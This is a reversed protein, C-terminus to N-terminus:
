EDFEELSEQKPEKFDLNEWKRVDGSKGEEFHESFERNFVRYKLPTEGLEYMIQKYFRYTEEKSKWGKEVRICYNDVFAQLPDSNENWIKLNAKESISWTFNGREMLQKSIGILVSFVLNREEVNDKLKQKLKNDRLPDGLPFKRNFMIIKWRRFFGDSQDNYVKPFRNCSFILKAYPKMKFPESYLHRVSVSEGSSITKIIGTHRLENHEIDTFLNALKGDLSPLCFQDDSLKQLSIKTYNDGLLNEIYEIAVSKGNAGTGYLLFSIENIQQKVFCCAMMELIDTRMIEDLKGEITCTTTLYNWFLTDKLNDEVVEHVPKTYSCPILVKSFHTPTHDKKEGTSLNFIGNELTVVNPDKDFEENGMYTLSKIKNIVENRNSESCNAIRKEVAEKIVSIANESEYIKGNYWYITDSERETIFHWDDILENAVIDIKDPDNSRLKLKKLTPKPLEDNVAKYDKMEEDTVPKEYDVTVNWSHGINECQCDSETRKLGKNRINNQYHHECTNHNEYFTGSKQCGECIFPSKLM